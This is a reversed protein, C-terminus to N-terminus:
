MSKLLKKNNAKAEVKAKEDAQFKAKLAEEQEPSLTPIEVNSM